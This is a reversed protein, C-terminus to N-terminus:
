LKHSNQTQVPGNLFESWLLKYNRVTPLHRGTVFMDVEQHKTKVKDTLSGHTMDSLHLQSRPDPRGLAWHPM